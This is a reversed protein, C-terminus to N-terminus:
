KHFNLVDKLFLNITRNILSGTSNLLIKAGKSKENHFRIKRNKRYEAVYGNKTGTKTIFSHMSNNQSLRTINIINLGITAM